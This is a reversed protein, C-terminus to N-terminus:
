VTVSNALALFIVAFAIRCPAVSISISYPGKENPLAEDRPGSAVVVVVNYRIRPTFFDLFDPLALSCGISCNIVGYAEECEHFAIDTPQLVPCFFGIVNEVM